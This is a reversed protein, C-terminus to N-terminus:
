VWLSTSVIRSDSRNQDHESQFLRIKCVQCLLAAVSFAAQSGVTSMEIPQPGHYSLPASQTCKLGVTAQLDEYQHLHKAVRLRMARLFSLNRKLYNRKSFNIDILRTHCQCSLELCLM